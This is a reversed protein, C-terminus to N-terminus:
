KEFQPLMGGSGGGGGRSQISICAYMCMVCRHLGGKQFDQSRDQMIIICFDSAMCM